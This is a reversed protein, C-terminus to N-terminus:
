IISMASNYAGHPETLNKYIKTIVNMSIGDPHGDGLDDKIVHPNNPHWLGYSNRIWRGYTSHMTILDDAKMNKLFEVNETSLDTLQHAVIEDPSLFMSSDVNDYEDNIASTPDYTWEHKVVDGNNQPSRLFLFGKSM